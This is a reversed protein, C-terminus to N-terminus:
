LAGQLRRVATAVPGAPAVAAAPVAAGLPVAPVVVPVVPV